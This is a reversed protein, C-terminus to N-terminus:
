SSKPPAASMYTDLDMDLTARATTSNKMMYADLERDLDGQSVPKKEERRGRGNNPRRRNNPKIADPNRRQSNNNRNQSTRKDSSVTDIDMSRDNRGHRRRQGATKQVATPRAVSRHPERQNPRRSVSM